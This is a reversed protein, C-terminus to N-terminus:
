SLEGKMSVSDILRRYISSRDDAVTTIARGAM